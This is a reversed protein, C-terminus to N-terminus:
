TRYPRLDAAVERVSQIPGYGARHAVQLAAGACLDAIGPLSYGHRELVAVCADRALDRIPADNWWVPAPEPAAELVAEVVAGLDVIGSIFVRGGGKDEAYPRQDGNQRDIEAAILYAVRQVGPVTSPFDTM